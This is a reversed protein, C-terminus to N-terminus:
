LQAKTQKNWLRQEGIVRNRIKINYIFYMSVRFFQFIFFSVTKTYMVSIEMSNEKPIHKMPELNIFPYM